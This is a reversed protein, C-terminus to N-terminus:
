FARLGQYSVDGFFQEPTVAGGTLFPVASAVMQLEQPDLQNITQLSPVALQGPGFTGYGMTHPAPLKGGFITEAIRGPVVVDGVTAGAGGRLVQSALVNSPNRLWDAYQAAAQIDLERTGLERELTPAGWLEGLTQAAELTPEAGVRGLLSGQQLGLQQRQLVNSAERATIAEALSGRGLEAELSLGGVGLYRQLDLEAGRLGLGGRGLFEDLALRERDVAFGERTLSGRQALEEVDLGLRGRGLEGSLALERAALTPVTDGDLSYVGLLASLAQLNNAEFRERELTARGDLRGTIGAEELRLAAAEVASLGGTGTGVLDFGLQESLIRNLEAEPLLAAMPGKTLYPIGTNSDIAVSLIQQDVLGKHATPLQKIFKALTSEPSRLTEGTVIDDLMDRSLSKGHATTELKYGITGTIANGDVDYEYDPVIRYVNAEILREEEPTLEELFQEGALVDRHELGEPSAQWVESEAIRFREMAGLLSEQQEAQSLSPFAVGREAAIEALSREEETKPAM